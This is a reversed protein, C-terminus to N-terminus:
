ICGLTKAEEATRSQTGTIKTIFAANKNAFITKQNSIKAQQAKIGRMKDMFKENLNATFKHFFELPSNNQLAPKPTLLLINGQDLPNSGGQALMDISLIIENHLKQPFKKDVLDLKNLTKLKEILTGILGENAQALMSIEFDQDSEEETKLM